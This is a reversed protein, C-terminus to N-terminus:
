EAKAHAEGLPKLERERRITQIRAMERRLGRKQRPNEVQETAFRVQLGFFEKRCELYRRKLEEDTLVRLERAKM